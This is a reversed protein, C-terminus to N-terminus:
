YKGEVGFKKKHQKITEEKYRTTYKKNNWTFTPNGAKRNRAFAKGFSENTTPGAAPRKKPKVPTNKKTDERRTPTKSPDRAPATKKVPATTKPKARTKKPPTASVTDVEPGGELTSARLGAAAPSKKPLTPRKPYTVGGPGKPMLPPKKRTPAKTSTSPKPSPKAPVSPKKPSAASVSTGSGSPKAPATRTNSSVKPDTKPRYAPPQNKRFQGTSSSRPNPLTPAKTIKADAPIKSKPVRKGGQRVLDDAVKKSNTGFIKKGIQILIKFASSAAM